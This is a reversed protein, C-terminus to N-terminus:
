LNNYSAKDRFLGQPIAYIVINSGKFIKVLNKMTSTNPRM